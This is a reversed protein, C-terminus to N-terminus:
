VKEIASKAMDIFRAVEIMEDNNVTPAEGNFFKLINEIQRGFYDSEVLKENVKFPCKPFMEVRATKGDQYKVNFIYTKDDIDCELSAIGTGLISVVMEGTHVLYDKMDKYTGHVSIDRMGQAEEVETAYRLSSTSYMPTNYEKALEIIARADAESEAFTKDIFTRKGYPLVMKALSYHQEPNDPSFILFADCVSALKDIDDFRPINHEACWEDTTKGNDRPSKDLTALAGVISCEIGLKQAARKFFEPYNSAHWEDLYYDVFGIKIM